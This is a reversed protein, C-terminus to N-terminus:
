KDVESCEQHESEDLLCTVCTRDEASTPLYGICRPSPSQRSTELLNLVYTIASELQEYAWFTGLEEATPRQGQWGRNAADEFIELQEDFPLSSSHNM